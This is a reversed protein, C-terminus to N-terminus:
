VKEDTRGLVDRFSLDYLRDVLKIYEGFLSHSFEVTVCMASIIIQYTTV